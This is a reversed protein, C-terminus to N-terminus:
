DLILEIEAEPPTERKAADRDAAFELYCSARADAVLNALKILQAPEFSELEIISRRNLEEIVHDIEDVLYQAIFNWHALEDIADEATLKRIIAKAQRFQKLFSSGLNLLDKNDLGDYDINSILAQHLESLRAKNM